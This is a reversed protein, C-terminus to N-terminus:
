HAFKLELVLFHVRWKFARWPLCDRNFIFAEKKCLPIICFHIFVSLLPCFCVCFSLYLSVSVYVSMFPCFFCFRVSVSMVGCLRCAAHSQAMLFNFPPWWQHVLQGAISLPLTNWRDLTDVLSLSFLQGPSHGGHRRLLSVQYSFGHSEWSM